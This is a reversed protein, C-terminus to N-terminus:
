NPYPWFSYPFYSPGRPKKKNVPKPPKCNHVMAKGEVETLQSLKNRTFFTGMQIQQQIYYVMGKEVKFPLRYTNESKGIVELAGPDREWCLYGKPGTKGILTQGDSVKMSMAGGRFATPRVVYIRAKNPDEVRKMQDPFPVIQTTSACGLFFTISFCLVPQCISKM